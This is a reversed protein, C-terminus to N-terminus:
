EGEFKYSGRLVLGNPLLAVWPASPSAIKGNLLCDPQRVECQVLILNDRQLCSQVYQLSRAENRSRLHDKYVYRQHTSQACLKATSKDDGLAGLDCPKSPDLCALRWSTPLVQAAEANAQKAENIKSSHSYLVWVFYSLVMVVMLGALPALTCFRIALPNKHDKRSAFLVCSVVIAVIIAISLLFLLFPIEM